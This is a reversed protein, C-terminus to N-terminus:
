SVAARLRTAVGNVVIVFAVFWVLLWVPATASGYTWGAALVLALGGYSALTRGSRKPSAGPSAVALLGLALVVVGIGGVLLPGRNGLPTSGGGLIVHEIGVAVVAIGFCLPLHAGTWVLFRGGPMRHRKAQSAAVALGEFYAWWLSFALLLGLLASAAAGPTWTERHRMGAMIAVVSQGFLIMDLRVVQDM